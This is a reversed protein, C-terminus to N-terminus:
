QHQTYIVTCPTFQKFIYSTALNSRRVDTISNTYHFHVCLDTGTPGTIKKQM